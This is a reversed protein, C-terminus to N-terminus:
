KQTYKYCIEENAEFSLLNQIVFLSFKLIGGVFKLGSSLYFFYQQPQHMEYKAVHVSRLNDNDKNGLVFLM